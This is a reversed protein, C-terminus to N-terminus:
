DIETKTDNVEENDLEVYGNLTVYCRGRASLFPELDKNDDVYDLTLGTSTFPAGINKSIAKTMLERWEKYDKVFTQETM